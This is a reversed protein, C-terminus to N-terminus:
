RPKDKPYLDWRIVGRHIPDTVNLGCQCFHGQHVAPHGIPIADHPKVDTM